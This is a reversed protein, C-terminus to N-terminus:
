DDLQNLERVLQNIDFALTAHTIKADRMDLRERLYLTLRVGSPQLLGSTGLDLQGSHTGTAILSVECMTDGRQEVHEITFQADPFARLWAGAFQAYADAGTAGRVFPPMDLVAAPAFLAGTDM